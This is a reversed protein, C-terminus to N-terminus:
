CIVACFADFAIRAPNSGVVKRGVSRRGLRSSWLVMTFVPRCKRALDVGPDSVWAAGPAFGAAYWRDVGSGKRRVSFLSLRDAQPTGGILRRNPAAYWRDVGSGAQPTGGILRSKSAAYWRDVGGIKRRVSFLSRRNAQPTGGILRRNPAAYRFCPGRGQPTGPLFTGSGQPTGGILRGWSAAYWTDVEGFKRRVM